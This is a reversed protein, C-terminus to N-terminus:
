PSTAPISGAAPSRKRPRRRSEQPLGEDHHQRPVHDRGDDRRGVAGRDDDGSGDRDHGGRGHLARGPPRQARHARRHRARGVGRAERVGRGTRLDRHPRLRAHHRLGDAGHRRDGRGAAGRRRRPLAGQARHRSKMEAPANILMCTCSRRAATTRSRTRASRTSSRRRRSRACASTSAPTRRWRGSSAGATATSCRCRGCTSRTGRCAGTSSTRCRTSIRAAITTSSARRIAPRAPRTTSRSRMGSTPRTSGRSSPIATPSSRKTTSRRRPAQRGARARRRHRHRAAEGAAAGAGARDDARVRHRHDAGEGRRARAHVRDGRRRAAHQAHQARRGDDARRLAGRGDGAHEGGDGRGHRRRRHGGQALASALRRCRAYTEAWTYRRDGHVVALQQPYTYATRAILSLPTLPTYNAANRDLDREFPNTRPMASGAPSRTDRPPTGRWSVATACADARGVPRKGRRAAERISGRWRGDRVAM